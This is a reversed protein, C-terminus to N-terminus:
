ILLIWGYTPLCMVYIYECRASVSEDSDYIKFVFAEDPRQASLYYWKLSETHVPYVTEGVYGRTVHDAIIMDEPSITSGDCVALADNQM